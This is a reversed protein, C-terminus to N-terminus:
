QYAIGINMATKLSLVRKNSILSTHLHAIGKM